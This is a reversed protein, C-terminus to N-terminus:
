VYYINNAKCFQRINKKSEFVNMLETMSCFLVRFFCLQAEMYIAFHKFYKAKKNLNIFIVFNPLVMLMERADFEFLPIWDLLSGFGFFQFPTPQLVSLKSLKIMQREQLFSMNHESCAACAYSRSLVNGYYYNALCRKKNYAMRNAGYPIPHANAYALHRKCHCCLKSSNDFFHTPGMYSLCFTERIDRIDVPRHKLCLLILTRTHLMHYVAACTRRLSALLLVRNIKSVSNRRNGCELCMNTFTETCFAHKPTTASFVANRKCSTCERKKWIYPFRIGHLNINGFLFANQIQHLQMNKEGDNLVHIYTNKSPISPVTDYQKAYTMCFNFNREMVLQNLLPQRNTAPIPVPRNNIFNFSM